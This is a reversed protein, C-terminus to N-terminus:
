FDAIEFIPELDETDSAMFGGFAQYLEELVKKVVAKDKTNYSAAYVVKIGKSDLFKRDSEEDFTDMMNEFILSDTELVIEMLDLETWIEKNEESVCHVAEELERVTVAKPIMYFYEEIVGKDVVAKAQIKIQEKGKSNNKKAKM